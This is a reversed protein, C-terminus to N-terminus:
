FRLFPGMPASEPNAPPFLAATFEGIGRRFKDSRPGEGTPV